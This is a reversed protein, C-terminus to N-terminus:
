VPLAEAKLVAVVVSTDSALGRPSFPGTPIQKLSNNPGYPLIVLSGYWSSDMLQAEAMMWGIPSFRAAQAQLTAKLGEPTNEQKECYRRAFEEFTLEKM